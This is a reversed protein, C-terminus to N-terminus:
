ILKNELVVKHALRGQFSVMLKDIYLESGYLWYRQSLSM